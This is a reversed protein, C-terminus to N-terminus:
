AIEASEDRTRPLSMATCLADIDEYFFTKKPEPARLVALVGTVTHVCADNAKVKALVEAEVTINHMLFFDGLAVTKRDFQAKATSDLKKTTLSKRVARAQFLVFLAETKQIIVNQKEEESPVVAAPASVSVEADRSRDRRHEGEVRVM